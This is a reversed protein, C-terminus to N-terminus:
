LKKATLSIAVAMGAGSPVDITLSGAPVGVPVTVQNFIVVLPGKNDWGDNSIQGNPNITGCDGGNGYDVGYNLQNPTNNYLTM